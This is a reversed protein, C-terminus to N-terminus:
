CPRKTKKKNTEGCTKTKPAQCAEEHQKKLQAKAEAPDPGPPDCQEEEETDCNLPGGKKKSRTPEPILTCPNIEGPPCKTNKKPPCRPDRGKKGDM